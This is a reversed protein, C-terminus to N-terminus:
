PFEAHMYREEYFIEACILAAPWIDSAAIIASMNSM